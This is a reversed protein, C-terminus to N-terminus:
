APPMSTMMGADDDAGAESDQGDGDASEFSDCVMMPSDKFNYKTCMGAQGDHHACVNCCEEASDCERYNPAQGDTGQDAGADMAQPPAASAGLLAHNPGAIFGGNNKARDAVTTQLGFAM